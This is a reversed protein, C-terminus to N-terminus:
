EGANSFCARYGLGQVTEICLSDVLGLKKRLYSIYVDVINGSSKCNPWVHDRIRERTLVEDPHQLFLALLAFEKPSLSIRRGNSFLERAVPDIAGDGISHYTEPNALLRSRRAVARIRALLEEVAFPKPIYDDAGGALARVKSELDHRASLVLAPVRENAQRIESLLQFGDKGPLIIDLLVVDPPDTVVLNFAREAETAVVVSHGEAKLVSEIAPAIPPEGDVVLIRM